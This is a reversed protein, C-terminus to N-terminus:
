IIKRSFTIHHQSQWLDILVSLVKVMKLSLACFSASALRVPTSFGVVTGFPGVWNFSRTLQRTPKGPYLRLIQKVNEM